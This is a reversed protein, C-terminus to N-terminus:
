AGNIADVFTKFAEVPSDVIGDVLGLALADGSNYTQAETALVAAKSFRAGRYQGVVDAFRDRTADNRAQTRALVDPPLPEFPNGETKHGGSAILTVKIGDQELAKSFDAHMSVVGVSGAAGGQPMVIQRTASALLYGASCAFDTLIALTPKQASLQALMAATEFCGAAEGGFSDIEFVAGKVNPSNAARAIQTQLGQYSTDGSFSGLWAGKYVLTGEIPITAVQGVMDLIDSDDYGSLKRGLRDSVVGMQQSPRGASFAIHNIAGIGALSFGGDVVRGGLGAVIAALKGKDIMLPADFLRAAIHPLHISM